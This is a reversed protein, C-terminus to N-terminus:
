ESDAYRLEFLDLEQELRRLVEDNIKNQNHLNLLAARQLARINKTLELYREYDGSSYGTEVQRTGPL